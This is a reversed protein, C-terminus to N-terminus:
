RPRRMAAAAEQSVARPGGRRRRRRQARRRSRGRSPGSPSPERRRPLPFPPLRSRASLPPPPFRRPAARRAPLPRLSRGGAPREAASRREPSDSTAAPAASGGAALLPPAPHGGAGGEGARARPARAAAGHRALGADSPVPGPFPTAPVPLFRPAPPPDLRVWPACLQQGPASGGSRRHLFRSGRYIPQPVERPLGLRAARGRPQSRHAAWLPGSESQQGSSFPSLTQVGVCPAECGSTRLGPRLLAPILLRPSHPDSLVPRCSLCVTFIHIVGLKLESDVLRLLPALM